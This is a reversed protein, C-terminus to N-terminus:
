GGTIAEGTAGLSQWRSQWDMDGGSGGSRGEIRGLEESLVPELLLLEEFLEGQDLGDAGHGTLPAKGDGM